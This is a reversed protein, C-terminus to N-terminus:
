FATEIQLASFRAVNNNSLNMQGSLKIKWIVVQVGPLFSTLTNSASGGPADVKRTQFRATLAVEESLYYDASLFGGVFGLSENTGTPKSVSLISNSNSGYMALGYLNLKKIWTNGDIGLRFINDKAVGVRSASLRAVLQNRGIYSFAGFRSTALRRSARLFLNGDFKGPDGM